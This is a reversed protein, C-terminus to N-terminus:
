HFWNEIACQKISCYSTLLASKSQWLSSQELIFDEELLFDILVFLCPTTAFLVFNINRSKMNQKTASQSVLRYFRNTKCDAIKYTKVYHSENFLSECRINKLLKKHFAETREAM